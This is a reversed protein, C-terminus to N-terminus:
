RIVLEANAGSLLTKAPEDINVILLAYFGALFIPVEDSKAGRASTAEGNARGPSCSKPAGRASTAEGMPSGLYASTQQSPNRERM